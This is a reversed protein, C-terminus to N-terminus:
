RVKDFVFIYKIREHLIKVEFYIEFFKQELGLMIKKEVPTENSM